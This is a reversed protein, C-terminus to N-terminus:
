LVRGGCASLRDGRLEGRAEVVVCHCFHSPEEVALSVVSSRFAQQVRRSVGLLIQQVM